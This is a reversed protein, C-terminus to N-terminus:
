ADALLLQRVDHLHLLRGNRLQDAAVKYPAPGEIQSLGIADDWPFSDFVYMPGM